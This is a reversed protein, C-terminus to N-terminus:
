VNSTGRYSTPVLDSYAFTNTLHSNVLTVDPTVFTM